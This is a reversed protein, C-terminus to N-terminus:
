ALTLYEPKGVADIWLKAEDLVHTGDASTYTPSSARFNVFGLGDEGSFFGYKTDAAIALATGPGYLRNGLRISGARVFIVEDESHSHLVTENNPIDFDNEHLWVHPTPEHADAHLAGGIGKNGGMAITRPVQESPLLYVKGPGNGAADGQRRNFVLLSAGAEGGTVNLSAGPEVIGSARENMGTGDAEVAGKWVFFTLEASDAELRLSAGPAIEYLRLHLPHEGEFFVRCQVDGATELPSDAAVAKELTRISVKQM